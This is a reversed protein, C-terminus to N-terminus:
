TKLTSTVYNDNDASLKKVLNWQCEYLAIHFHHPLVLLLCDCVTFNQVPTSGHWTICLMIKCPMGWLTVWHFRSETDPARAGEGISLSTIAFHKSIIKYNPVTAMQSTVSIYCGIKFTKNLGRNRRSTTLVKIAAIKRLLNQNDILEIGDTLAPPCLRPFCCQQRRVFVKIRSRPVLSSHWCLSKTLVSFANHFFM